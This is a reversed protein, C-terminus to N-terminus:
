QRQRKSEEIVERLAHEVQGVLDDPMYAFRECFHKVVKRVEPSNWWGGVDNWITAVHRAASQPKEHFIGVRQLEEFYHVVSHRLECHNPNWYVVTPVNMTIAELFTTGNNGSIILRSQRILDKINIRGEDIHLTPFQERWREAQDWGHDNPFLRVMLANRIHIPLDGVFAVQDEFYDLWQRSVFGSYLTHSYRRQTITVLLARPQDVHRIGLPREAKLQGVPIIKSQDPESWGWSLFRDSIAIEHKEMFGWLTTGYNGGHQGIVLPVGQEVKQAAWAKFLDDSYHSNSTFIVRPHRPWPLGKTQELLKTYGELYLTPIQLPIMIRALQEFDSSAEVKICWGRQSLDPLVQVPPVDRWFQPIQGLRLNLRFLDIRSLYTAIFFADVDRGLIRALNTYWELLQRRLVRKPSVAPQDSRLPACGQSVQGICRVQTFRQLIAAYIQHNWSDGTILEFFEAMDNPICVANPDPLIITESLDYSRVAEQISSWRDFLIQTFYGLWPGVLIRWYRVSHDTGHIQNLKVVLEQLLQEYFGQLYQYDAFLKARDDWHYPLVQADMLSWLDKRSHRRCWEGLFLVPQDLKWTREDATTILFRRM